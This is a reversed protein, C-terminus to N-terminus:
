RDREESSRAGVVPRRQIAEALESPEEAGRPEAANAPPRRFTQECRVCLASLDARGTRIKYPPACGCVFLLMKGKRAPGALRRRALVFAEKIGPDLSDLARRSRPGWQIEAYGVQADPREPAVLGAEEALAKFRRNHYRGQQSTDQMGRDHAQQHVMERVLELLIRDPPEHLDEACVNLEARVNGRADAWQDAAYWGQCEKRGRRQITIVPPGSLRSGFLQRDFHRWAARLAVEQVVEELQRTETVEGTEGM